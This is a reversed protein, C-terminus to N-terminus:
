AMNMITYIRFIDHERAIFGTQFDIFDSECRPCFVINQKCIKDEYPQYYLYGTLPEASIENCFICIAGVNLSQISFLDLYCLRASKELDIKDADSGNNNNNNKPPHYFM